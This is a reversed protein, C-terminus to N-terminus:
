ANGEEDPEFQVVESATSVKVSEFSLPHNSAESKSFGTAIYYYDSLLGATAELAM